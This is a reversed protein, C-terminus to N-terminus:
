RCHKNHGTLTPPVFTTDLVLPLLENIYGPFNGVVYIRNSDFAFDTVSASFTAGVIQTNAGGALDTSGLVM